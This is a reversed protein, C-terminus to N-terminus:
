VVAAGDWGWEEPEANQGFNQRWYGGVKDPNLVDWEAENPPEGWERRQRKEVKLERERSGDSSKEQSSVQEM